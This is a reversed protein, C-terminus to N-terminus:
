KKRLDVGLRAPGLMTVTVVEKREGLDPHRFTVDHRGISLSLNGIPTQGAQQGDILVDAWPVANISLTGNPVEVRTVTTKGPAIKFHQATRFGLADNVLEVNYDGSPLMLRDVDSTGLLRGHERIQLPIPTAITLWGPTVGAAESKPVAATVIVSTAEGANVRVTKNVLGHDARVSIAHEGPSVKEIVIPSLGREAGDLLVALKSPETQVRLTGTAPPAAPAPPPMEFHQFVAAGSAIPITVTRGNEATGLRVQYSGATLPLTVPSLGVSKDAVFIEVGAPVTEVTLSGPAARWSIPHLRYENVGATLAGIVVAGIVLTSVHSAPARRKEAARRDAAV